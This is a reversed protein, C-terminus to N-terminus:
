APLDVRITDASRPPAQGHPPGLGNDPLWNRGGPAPRCPHLEGSIRVRDCRVLAGPALTVSVSRTFPRMAASRNLRALASNPRSFGSGGASGATGRLAGCFNWATEITGPGRAHASAWAMA